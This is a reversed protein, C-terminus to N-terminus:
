TPYKNLINQVPDPMKVNGFNTRIAKALTQCLVKNKQADDRAAAKSGWLHTFPKNKEDASKLFTAFPLTSMNTREMGFIRQEAFVMQSVMEAPRQTNDQMFDLAMNTYSKKFQKALAHDSYYVLATNYPNADWNWYSPPNYGDPKKLLEYPLYCSNYDNLTEPHFAMLKNNGVMQSLASWVLMDTDMMVFPATEAQTAFIKGAAWFIDPLVLNNHSFTVTKNSEIFPSSKQFTKTDIGGNWLNLMGMNQYYTYGTTDTYLKIPGNMKRWLLASLVTSLVEFDEQSYQGKRRNYVGSKDYVYMSPATWVAHIARLPNSAADLGNLENAAFCDETSGDANDAASYKRISGVVDDFSPTGSGSTSTRSAPRTVPKPSRIAPRSTVTTGSGDPVSADDFTAHRNNEEISDVVDEFSLAGSGTMRKTTNVIIGNNIYNMLAALGAPMDTTAANIDIHMNANAKATSMTAGQTTSTNATSNNVKVTFEGNQENNVSVEADFDINVNDLKLYPLPVITILPVQLRMPVGERVFTFVMPTNKEMVHKTYNWAVESANQQADVCATLIGGILKGFPVTSVGEAAEGLTYPEVNYANKLAM